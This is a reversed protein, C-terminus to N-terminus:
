TSTPPTPSDKSLSSLEPVDYSRAQTTVNVDEKSMFISSNHPPHSSSRDYAGQPPLPPQSVMKQHPQTPFM